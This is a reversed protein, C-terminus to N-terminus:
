DVRLVYGVCPDVANILLACLWRLDEPDDARLTTFGQALVGQPHFNWETPALIQYRQVEGQRLEVRHILRGRAAEVQALGSGSAVAPVEATVNDATSGLRDLRRRLDAPIQALESLRALLRTALGNGHSAAMEAIPRRELQRALPTTEYVQGQWTPRSIFDVADDASFRRSLLANDLLPLAAVRSAGMDAWGNEQLRRLLRAAPTLGRDIWAEIADPETMSLWQGSSCGFVERQLSVELTELVQAILATDLALVAGPLFAEADAFLARRADPLLRMLPGLRQKASQEQLLAPWDIMIRWLHERATELWLLMERAAVVAPASALGLAQEIALASAQAQATGCVSYLLPLMKLTEEATKGRFIGAAQLPRSSGISVAAVVAGERALEITLEGEFGAM